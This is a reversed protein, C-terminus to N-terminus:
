STADVAEFTVTVSSNSHALIWDHLSFSMLFIYGLFYSLESSVMALNETQTPIQSNINRVYM